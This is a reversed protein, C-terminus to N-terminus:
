LNLKSNIRVTVTARSFIYSCRYVRGDANLDMPPTSLSFKDTDLTESYGSGASSPNGDNILTTTDALWSRPQTSNFNGSNLICHILLPQGNEVFLEKGPDGLTINVVEGIFISFLAHFM